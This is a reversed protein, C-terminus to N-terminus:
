LYNGIDQCNMYLKIILKPIRPILLFFIGLINLAKADIVAHASHITAKGAFEDLFDEIEFIM